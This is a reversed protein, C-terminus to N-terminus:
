HLTKSVQHDILWTLKIVFSNIHCHDSDISDMTYIYSKLEDLIFWEDDKGEEM